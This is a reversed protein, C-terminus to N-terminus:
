ELIRSLLDKPSIVPLDSQMFGNLDRTVIIDCAGEKASLLQLSDEIDSLPSEFMASVHEPLAPLVKVISTIDQIIARKRDANVNKIVYAITPISLISMFLELAGNRGLKLIAAADNCFTQDDRDLISDLLVNTDLFTRM